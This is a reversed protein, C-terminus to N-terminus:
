PHRIIPPTGGTAFGQGAAMEGSRGAGHWDGRSEQEEKLYM